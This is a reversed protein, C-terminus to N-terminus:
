ATAPASPARRSGVTPAFEHARSPVPSEFRSFSNAGVARHGTIVAMWTGQWLRYANQAALLNSHWMRQQYRQMWHYRSGSLAGYPSGDAARREGEEQALDIFHEVALRYYDSSACNGILAEAEGAARRWLNLALEDSIGTQRAIWPLIKPAKM